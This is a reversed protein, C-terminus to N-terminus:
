IGVVLTWVSGRPVPVADCGVEGPTDIGLQPKCRLGSAPSRTDSTTDRIVSPPLETGDDREAAVTFSRVM